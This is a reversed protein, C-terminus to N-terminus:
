AATGVGVLSGDERVMDALTSAIVDMGDTVAGGDVVVSEAEVELVDCLDLWEAATSLLWPKMPFAGANNILIDIGGFASSSAKVVEATEEDSGLDGIAAMAMGGTATIEQVVRDAEAKRRGHVVVQVGEAALTKAIQEGIGSTSGTVLARKGNLQLDM